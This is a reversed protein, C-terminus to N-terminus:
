GYFKGILVLNGNELSNVVSNWKGCFKGILDSKWKSYFKGHFEM